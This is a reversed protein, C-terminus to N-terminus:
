PHPRTPFPPCFLSVEFRAGVQFVLAATSWQWFLLINILATDAQCQAAVVTGHLQQVVQQAVGLWVPSTRLEATPFTKHHVTSALSNDQQQQM